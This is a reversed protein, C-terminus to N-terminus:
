TVQARENLQRHIEKLKEESIRELENLEKQWRSALDKDALGSGNVKVNLAASQIAAIALSGAVGADSLANTNGIAAIEAALVLVEASKRAVALPVEGAQITAHELAEARAAKEAGSDKAMRLARMVGDFAQADEIAAAELDARLSEAQRVIEQAQDEVDAYKKKGMTLRGVMAVLAAAMAGSHAAASGGGPTPAGDALRDLFSDEASGTLHSEILQDTEFDDLQLYWAATDILAAQPTLGVLESSHVDVGHRKAESRIMEVVRHIPTRTFDTLNMSVQARGEVLLGLAKVFRLGGGSHRVNKAIKKAVDVDDTTLYV